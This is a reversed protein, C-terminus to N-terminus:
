EFVNKITPPHENFVDTEKHKEAKEVRRRQRHEGHFLNAGGMEEIILM